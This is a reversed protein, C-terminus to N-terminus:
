FILNFYNFLSNLNLFFEFIINKIYYNYVVKIIKNEISLKIIIIIFILNLM